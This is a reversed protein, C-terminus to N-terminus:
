LKNVRFTITCYVILGTNSVHLVFILWYIWVLFINYFFLLEIYLWLFCIRILQMFFLVYSSAHIFETKLWTSWRLVFLLM